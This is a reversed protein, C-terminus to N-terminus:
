RFPEFLRIRLTSLGRLVPAASARRTVEHRLRGMYYASTDPMRGLNAYRSRSRVEEQPGEDRRWPGTQNPLSPLSEIAFVLFPTASPVGSTPLFTM